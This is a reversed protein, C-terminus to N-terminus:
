RAAARLEEVVRRLGDESRGAGYASVYQRLLAPLVTSVVRERDREIAERLRRCNVGGYDAYYMSFARDLYDYVPHSAGSREVDLALRHLGWGELIRLVESHLMFFIVEKSM